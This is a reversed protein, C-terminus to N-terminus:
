PPTQPCPKTSRIHVPIILMTIANNCKCPCSSPLSIALSKYMTASSVVTIVYQCWFSPATATHSFWVGVKLCKCSSTCTKVKLRLRRQLIHKQAFSSNRAARVQRQQLDRICVTKCLLQEPSALRDQELSWTESVGILHRDTQGDRSFRKEAIEPAEGIPIAPAGSVM